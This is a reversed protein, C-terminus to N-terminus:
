ARGVVEAIFIDDVKQVGGGSGRPIEDTYTQAEEENEFLLLAMGRGGAELDGAWFGSVFGPTGSTNPIVQQRLVEAAEGGDSFTVSMFAAHM